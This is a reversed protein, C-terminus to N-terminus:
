PTTNPTSSGPRTSGTTLTIQNASWNSAMKGVIAARLIVMALLSGAILYPRVRAPLRGAVWVYGVLGAVWVVPLAHAVYALVLIPVAAGVRRSNPKWLLALAWFCLGLSLYFNFFGMHFVWGYALMAICPLIQWPNRGSVVRAFAFAGWIFILVALSVSVRQAAEPGLVRFLGSLMLDFLVNTTQAVIQLGQIHGSEILQVLWANYIHSALDGAQIRPQWYCPALLLLSVLAYLWRSQKLAALAPHEARPAPASPTVRSKPKPRM